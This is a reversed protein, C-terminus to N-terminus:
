DEAKWGNHKKKLNKTAGTSQQYSIMAGLMCDFYQLCRWESYRFFCSVIHNHHNCTQNIIHKYIHIPLHVTRGLYVCALMLMIVETLLVLYFKIHEASNRSDEFVSIGLTFILSLLM